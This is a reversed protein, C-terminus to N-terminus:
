DKTEFIFERQKLAEIPEKCKYEPYLDSTILTDKNFIALKGLVYIVYNIGWREKDTEAGKKASIKDTASNKMTTIYKEDFHEYEFNHHPWSEKLVKIMKKQSIANYDMQVCRNITRNDTLALAAIFGIDEIDHTYIPTNLNGFTTIKRFFRLNPLFYDFIGGNYFLTWDMGSKFLLKHFEKKNDFVEGEGMALGHTHAGFETPVFRKIKAKVAAKLWIPELEKINQKSGPVAVVLTDCGMIAKAVEDVDKMNPCINIKAGKKEFSHLSNKNHDNIQRAVVVVDHGLDLLAKTLPTGIQGTAGIVAVSKKNM